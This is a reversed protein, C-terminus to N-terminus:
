NDRAMIELLKSKIPELLEHAIKGLAFKQAYFIDESTVTEFEQKSLMRKTYREFCAKASIEATETEIFESSGLADIIFEEPTNGPLYYLNTKAFELVKCLGEKIQSINGGNNGGDCPVTISVGFYKDSLDKLEDLELHQLNPPLEIDKNQDGDLFFYVNKDHLLAHQIFFRQLLTSVGGPYYQVEFINVAPQSILSIAREVIVKALRDEVYIIKKADTAHELHFFAEHHSNCQAQSVKGNSKELYLIKIASTPLKSVIIPSHTGLVFQHKHKKVSDYIFKILRQQAGPHLSVEPEDLIILSHSEATSIKNVLQIVAFEGSGAFAESYQLDNSQIIATYSQNKFLNHRILRIQNYERGLIISIAKVQEIPLTENFYIHEVQGKYLKLSKLDKSIVDHLIKSKKRLFDQKTNITLTQRIDGHYFYKDFASIESRFDIYVVNKKIANWRTKSRGPISLNDPMKKMRDQTLPRSPEWYDPNDKKNIRSKIVEVIEGHHKNLYGYIFRSRNSDLIPDVETSFWFNGVNYGDPCGYLAKLISSKNTGNQGVIATIPYTLEIKLNNSINKYSPFRIHRIYPELQKKELLIELECQLNSESSVKKTAM